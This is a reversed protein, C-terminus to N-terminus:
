SSLKIPNLQARGTVQLSQQSQRSSSVNILPLLHNGSMRAPRPLQSVSIFAQEKNNM